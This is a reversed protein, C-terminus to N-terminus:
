KGIKLPDDQKIQVDKLTIGPIDGLRSMKADGPKRGQYNIAADVTQGVVGFPSFQDALIAYGGASRRLNRISPDQNYQQQRVAAQAADVGVGIFPLSGGIAAGIKLKNATSIGRVGQQIVENQKIFQKMLKPNRQIQSAFGRTMNQGRLSFDGLADTVKDIGPKYINKAWDYIAREDPLAKIVDEIGETRLGAEELIRHAKAHTKPDKYFDFNLLSNGAPIGIRKELNRLFNKGAATLGKAETWTPDALQEIRKVLQGTIQAPGSHHMIGKLFRNWFKYNHKVKPDITGIKLLAKRKAADKLDVASKAFKFSKKIADWSPGKIGGKIVANFRSIPQGEKFLNSDKGLKIVIEKGKKGAQFILNTSTPPKGTADARNKIFDAFHNKLIGTQDNTFDLGKRGDPLTIIKIADLPDKSM